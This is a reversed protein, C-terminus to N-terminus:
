KNLKIIAALRGTKGGDGRHSFLLQNNCSTCVEAVTLNSDKVGAALLQRRNAEWLNLKWRGNGKDEFLDKKYSFKDFAEFLHESVEYCCAGISPGIAVLCDAPKSAFKEMLALLTKPGIEAETGKWGAHALGIAKQVPDLFFIPVCDAYNTMLALEPENTIIADTNPIADSFDITGRGKFDKSVVKIEAGHVQQACIFDEFAFGLTEAIIRRNAIVKEAEDEVHLGLNLENYPPNSVGGIRTTFANTVIGTEDFSPISYYKVNAKQHLKFQKKNEVV